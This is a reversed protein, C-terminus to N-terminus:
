SGLAQLTGVASVNEATAVVDIRRWCFRFEYATGSTLGTKTQAVSLSGAFTRHKGTDPDVETVSDTACTVESAIDAFTGGVVRWQWKGAAGTEGDPGSGLTVGTRKFNIPATCAVQGGAGATATITSSVASTLDYSTSTTDGLTTTSGSSGSGGGGGGGGGANTPPDDQRVVRITGKRDIGQYSGTVEVHSELALTSNNPGTIELDAAGTGSITFTANGDITVASWTVGSSLATGARVYKPVIPSPLQGSKPTGSADAYITVVAPIDILATVDAGFDGSDGPNFSPPNLQASGAGCVFPERMSLVFAGTGATNNSLYLELSLYVAGAPVFAFGGVETNFLLSGTGSALTPAGVASNDDAKFNATLQWSWGAFACV